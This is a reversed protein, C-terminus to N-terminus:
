EEVAMSVIDDFRVSTSRNRGLKAPAELEFEKSNKLLEKLDPKRNRISSKRRLDSSSGGAPRQITIPSVRNNSRLSVESSSNSNLVSERTIQANKRRQIIEKSCRECKCIFGWNVRLERRRLSVGHLPNVYTTFLEEDKQISKRAYVKLEMKNNIDYRVNPECNHNLFAYLFYLQGNLQNIHFRGLHKLFVEYDLDGADPFSRIFLDYARKWLPEPNEDKLTGLEADFTGGINNSDSSKYRVRQSVQALSEFQQNIEDSHSKDILTAAHIVGISYAAVFINEQCHREFMTWDMPRINKNKSGFHKLFPHTIDKQKCIASCWISNCGNCDLGHLMTFHSSNSVSVGCMSCSKGSRILKLKDMPPVMAIPVKEHFILEGQQIDRTAFLGRGKSKDECERLEVKSPLKGKVMDACCSIDPFEIKDNYSEMQNDDMAYLNNSLLVDELEEEDLKWEPNRLKMKEYLHYLDLDEAAPEEKWLLVVDDRIEQKTPVVSSGPLSPESDNLSLTQIKLQGVSM